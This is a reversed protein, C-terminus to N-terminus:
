LIAKNRLVWDNEAYSWEIVPGVLDEFQLGMTSLWPKGKRKNFFYKKTLPYNKILYNLVKLGYSPFPIDPLENRYLEPNATFQDPHVRYGGLFSQIRNLDTLKSFEQWLYFDAAYKYQDGIGGVNDWLSRRWFTSEQQIWNFGYQLFKVDYYGNKLYRRSYADPFSDFGTRSSMYNYSNPIGTAWNVNEFQTFVQAVTQFAFPHYMDDSNVWAMVDGSTSSFAKNIADYMGNDPETIYRFDIDNCQFDFNGQKIRDSWKEIIELLEDNSGGDQIVYEIEFDGKQTIVSRITEELYTRRNYTPTVISLKM